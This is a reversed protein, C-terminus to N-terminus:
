RRLLVAIIVWLVLSPLYAALARGPTVFSGRLAVWFALTVMNWARSGGYRMENLCRAVHSHCNDMCINHMRGLYEDCGSDVGADWAAAASQGPARKRM